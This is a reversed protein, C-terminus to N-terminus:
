YDEEDQWQHNIFGNTTTPCPPENKVPPENVLAINKFKNPQQTYDFIDDFADARQDALKVPPSMAMGLPNLGFIQEVYHLASAVEHQKHSIYGPKAYPSVVILPVRYGLGEYAHIIPDKYQPPLVHDYWGGWEDWTIIIATNNWYQSNGIANVISAVWNPGCNGSGGGPHDSAGGHPMVWSVQPLAGNQVDTLVNTDPESIDGNSWDPGYRIAKVADFANLWYSDQPNPNGHLYKPQVYYRWTIGAADLEDAITTYSGQSGTTSLPFCPDPGNVDHGIDPKFAPPKAQGFEIYLETEKPADCGWPYTSPVEDADGQQAAILYQHSGFSPGSNSAFMDDGLTYQTAMDWYPQVQSQIAYTYPEQMWVKQPAFMWCHPENVWNYKTCGAGHPKSGIIQDEWGDNKKGDYDELFQYHFHNLDHAYALPLPSLTYVKGDHGLGTTATNAGPFGYFLNDLSRNEQMIIVIHQIPSSSVRHHASDYAAGFPLSGSPSSGNCATMSLVLFLALKRM